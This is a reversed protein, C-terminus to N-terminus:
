QVSNPLKLETGVAFVWTNHSGSCTTEREMEVVVNKEDKRSQDSSNATKVRKM